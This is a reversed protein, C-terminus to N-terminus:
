KDISSRIINVTIDSLLVEYHNHPVDILNMRDSHHRMSSRTVVGDNAETIFPSAGQTTVLNTWDCPLRINKTHSM